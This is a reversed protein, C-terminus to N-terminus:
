KRKAPESPRSNNQKAPTPNQKVAPPNYPPSRRVFNQQTGSNNSRSTAAPYNTKFARPQDWNTKLEQPATIHQPAAMVHAPAPKTGSQTVAAVQAPKYITLIRMDVNDTNPRGTSKVQYTYVPKHTAGEVDSVRPGASYTIGNDGQYNNNINHTQALLTQTRGPGHWFDSRWTNVYYPKYLHKPNMFVWWDNPCIFEQGYFWGPYMPAWGCYGGGWRWSVWGPGWENGPIWVWGYYGNFVWRGYHFCAWGWPYESVWTNGYQTMVWRGDTFYPRFDEDVGPVWVYGYEPDEIWQGYPSLADYFSQYSVYVDGQAQSRKVTVTLLFLVIFLSSFKKM